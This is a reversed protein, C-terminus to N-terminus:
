KRRATPIVEAVMPAPAIWDRVNTNQMAQCGCCEIRDARHRLFSVTGNECRRNEPEQRRAAFEVVKGDTTPLVVTEIFTAPAWGGILFATKAPGFARHTGM